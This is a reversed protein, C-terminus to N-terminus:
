QEIDPAHGSNGVITVFSCDPLSNARELAMEFTSRAGVLPLFQKPHGPRSAPWLRAGTGGCLIVPMVAM